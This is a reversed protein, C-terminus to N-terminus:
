TWRQVEAITKAPVGHSTWTELARKTASSLETKADFLSELFHGVPEVREESANQLHNGIAGVVSEILGAAGGQVQLSMSAAHMADFSFELAVLQALERAGQPAFAEELLLDSLKAAMGYNALRALPALQNARPVPTDELEMCQRRLEYEELVEKIQEPDGDHLREQIEDNNLIIM